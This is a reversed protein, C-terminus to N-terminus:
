LYGTLKYLDGEMETIYNVKDWDNLESFQYVVYGSEDYGVKEFINKEDARREYIWPEDEHKPIWLCTKLPVYLSKTIYSYGSHSYYVGCEHEGWIAYFTVMKLAPLTELVQRIEEDADNQICFQFIGNYETKEINISQGNEECIVKAKIIDSELGRFVTGFFGRENNIPTSLTRGDHFKYEQMEPKEKIKEAKFIKVIKSMDETTEPTKTENKPCRESHVYELLLEQIKKNKAKGIITESEERSILQNDALFIYLPLFDKEKSLLKAQQDKIFEIYNSVYIKEAEGYSYKELFGKIASVKLKNPVDTLKKLVLTKVNSNKLVNYELRTFYNSVEFYELATCEEFASEGIRVVSKPITATALNTCFAFARKGIDTVGNAMAVEVLNTCACFAQDGISTVSDPIVVSSLSECYSFANERIKTVNNPIVLDTLLTGNFYLQHAYSLPNSNYESFDINCWAFIDMIHVSVLKNCGDFANSGIKKIRNSITIKSLDQCFAFAERGISTVSNPIIIEVLGKCYSFACEGISVVSNPIYINKIFDCREFAKADIRKINDPIVVNESTGRYKQLIGGKLIIFDKLDSM